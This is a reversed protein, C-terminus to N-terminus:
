CCMVRFYRIVPRKRGSPQGVTGAGLEFPTMRTETCGALSNPVARASLWCSVWSPFLFEAASVEIAGLLGLVKPLISAAGNLGDLQACTDFQRRFYGVVTSDLYRRADGLAAAMHCHEDDNIRDACEKAQTPGPELEFYAILETRTVGILKALKPWIWASPTTQGGEWRKVTSVDVRLRHALEEQTLGASKRAQRLRPRKQPM